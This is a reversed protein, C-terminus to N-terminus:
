VPGSWRASISNFTLFSVGMTNEQLTFNAPLAERWDDDGLLPAVVARVKGSSLLGQAGELVTREFGNTHMVLLDVVEGAPIELLDDLRVTHMWLPGDPADVLASDAGVEGGRSGPAEGAGREAISTLWSPEEQAIVGRVPRGDGIAVAHVSARGTLGNAEITEECLSVAAGNIEYADWRRVKQAHVWLCDCLFPGVEVVWPLRGRLAAAERAREVEADVGFGCSPNGTGRIRDSIVERHEFVRIRGLQGGIWKACARRDVQELHPCAAEAFASFEKHPFHGGNAYMGARLPAWARRLRWHDEAMTVRSPACRGSRARLGSLRGVVRNLVGFTPWREATAAAWSIAPLGMVIDIAEMTANWIRGHELNLLLTGLVYAPWCASLAPFNCLKGVEPGWAQGVMGCLMHRFEEGFLQLREDTRDSAEVSFFSAEAHFIFWTWEKCGDM